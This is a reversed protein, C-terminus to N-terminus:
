KWTFHGMWIHSLVRENTDHGMGILCSESMLTVHSTWIHWLENERSTVWKYTHCTREYTGYSMKVHRSEKMRTVHENMHAIVWKWTVHSLCVHSMNTWIHWLENYLHCSEKMHTVHSTWIRRSENRCIWGVLEHDQRDGLDLIEDRAFLHSMDWEYAHSSESMRTVHSMWIHSMVWEYTHCSENVHTVHSMWIHSMVWECIHCSENVHTVHSMWIHSMVWECTHCSENMHTVHSMWM